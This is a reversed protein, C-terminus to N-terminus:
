QELEWVKPPPMEGPYHELVQSVLDSVDIIDSAAVLHGNEALEFIQALSYRLDVKVVQAFSDGELPSILSARRTSYSPQKQGPAMRPSSLNGARTVKCSRCSISAKSNVTLLRGQPDIAILDEPKDNTAENLVDGVMGLFDDQAGLLQCGVSILLRAVVQEGLNGLAVHNRAAAWGQLRRPLERARDDQPNMLQQREDQAAPYRLIRLLEPVTEDVAVPPAQQAPDRPLCLCM